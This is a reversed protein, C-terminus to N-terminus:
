QGKDRIVYNQARRYQGTDILPTEGTRGRARRAALTRPSLPPPIVSDIKRQVAAVALLGVAAHTDDLSDTKGDLVAQAGVRYRRAIEPEISEIGPVLHPRAPINAAPSGNEMLYGIVANTIGPPEGPEPERDANAAPIGVLVQKKTLNNLAKLVQKTIDKKITVGRM